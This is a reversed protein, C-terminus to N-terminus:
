STLHILALLPLAGLITLPVARAGDFVRRLVRALDLLAVCFSFTPPGSDPVRGRTQRDLLLSSSSSSGGAAGSSRAEPM